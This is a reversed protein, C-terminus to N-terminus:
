AERPKKASITFQPGGLHGLMVSWYFELGPEHFGVSAMDDLLAWGFHYYCLIGEKSLPDGHYIPTELHEVLGAADIRARTSNSRSHLEFPATLYFTGGPALCRFVESLVARYDPVHELVDYSAIAAFTNDAFSLRTVDEARIGTANLEGRRTGDQLYESGVANPFLNHAAVFLPTAQEMMYIPDSAAASRMLLGFAARMRSSLHCHVCELRERWNPIRGEGTEYCHIYDVLFITARECVECYGYIEFPDPRTFFTEVEAM